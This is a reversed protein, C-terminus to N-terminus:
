GPGRRIRSAGALIAHQQLDGAAGVQEAALVRQQGLGEAGEPALAVAGMTGDRGGDTQGPPQGTM